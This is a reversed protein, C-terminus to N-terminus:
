RFICVLDADVAAEEEHGLDFKNKRLEFVVRRANLAFNTDNWDEFLGLEFVVWLDCHCELFYLALKVAGRDVINVASQNDRVKWFARFYETQSINQQVPWSKAQAV